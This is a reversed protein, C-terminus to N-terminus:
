KMTYIEIMKCSCNICHFLYGLHKSNVKKSKLSPKQYVIDHTKKLPKHNQKTRRQIITNKIVKRKNKLKRKNNKYIGRKYNKLKIKKNKRRPQHKIGKYNRQQKSSKRKTVYPHGYQISKNSTMRHILIPEDDSSLDMNDSEDIFPANYIAPVTFSPM